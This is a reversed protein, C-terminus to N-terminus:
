PQSSCSLLFGKPIVGSCQQELIVFACFLCHSIGGRQSHICLLFQTLSSLTGKPLTPGSPPVSMGIVKWIGNNRAAQIFGQHRHFHVFDGEVSRSEKPKMLAAFFLSLPLRQPYRRQELIVFAGFLM